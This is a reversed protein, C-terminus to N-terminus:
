NIIVKKTTAHKGTSLQVFYIGTVLDAVGIEISSTQKKLTRVLVGMNNYINVVGKEISDINLVNNVPNPYLKFEIAEVDELSTANDHEFIIDDIYLLADTGNIDDARLIMRIRDGNALSPDSSTSRSFTQSLEVWKGKEVGRLDVTMSQWPNELIFDIEDISTSPDMWVKFYLTNNGAPLDLSGYPTFMAYNGSFSGSQKFRASFDGSASKEDKIRWPINGANWWQVSRGQFYFPGEFGLANYDPGTIEKQWIRVYDIKFEAPSSLDAAAPLGYWSFVETDLWLEMPHQHRWQDNAELETRTAHRVLEGNFYTKIYDKDWEFGYVFYDSALREDMIDEVKWNKHDAAKDPDWNIMNTRYKRELSEPKNEPNGIPRKGYNETMDIESHYGTTWFASTVPADAGKCRIEMYGYRFYSESMICAQTIPQSNDAASTSGGYWTGDHIENAFQFTPEWQSMLVLDGNEVKVNHSVFQGPARGKWKTRYDNNEGLIWWKTKDLESGNFEDSVQSNLIWGASNSPDSMPYDQGFLQSVALLAILLLSLKMNM